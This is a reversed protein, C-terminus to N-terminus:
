IEVQLAFIAMKQNLQTKCAMVLTEIGVSTTEKQSRRLRALQYLGGLFWNTIIHIFSLDWTKFYDAM